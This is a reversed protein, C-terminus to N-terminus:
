IKVDKPVRRLDVGKAKAARLREINDQVVDSLQDDILPISWIKKPDRIAKRYPHSNIAAWVVKRFNNQERAERQYYGELLEEHEEVTLQYYERHTM